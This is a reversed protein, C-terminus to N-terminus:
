AMHLGHFLLVCLYFTQELPVQEGGLDNSTLQEPRIELLEVGGKVSNAELVQLSFHTVDVSRLSGRSNQTFIDLIM